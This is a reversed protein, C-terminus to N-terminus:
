DHLGSVKRAMSCGRKWDRQLPRALLSNNVIEIIQLDYCTLQKYIGFLLTYELDLFVPLWTDLFGM